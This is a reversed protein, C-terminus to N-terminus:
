AAISEARWGRQMARAIIEADTLVASGRRWYRGRVTQRGDADCRWLPGLRRLFDAAQGAVSFDRYVEVKMVKHHTVLKAPAILAKPAKPKPEAAKRERSVGARKHWEQVTGRGVGYHEALARQPTMRAREAYDDPISLAPRGGMMPARGIERNWRAMTSSAVNYRLGLERTTEVAAHAAYDDPIPRFGSM